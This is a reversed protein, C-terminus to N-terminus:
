HEAKMADGVMMDPHKGCADTAAARDIEQGMAGGAMAGNAMEGEPAAAMMAGTDGTAGMQGTADMAMFDKCSLDEMALAPLAAAFVFAAALLTRTM